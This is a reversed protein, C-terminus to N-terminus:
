NRFKLGVVVNKQGKKDSAESSRSSVKKSALRLRSVQVANERVFESGEFAPLFRSLDKLHIELSHEEVFSKHLESVLVVADPDVEFNTRLFTSILDQGTKWQATESQIAHPVNPLKKGNEYWAKSGSVLWALAAELQGTHNSYIRERLGIDIQRDTSSTPNSKYTYPFRVGLMRRWVSHGGDTLRPYHNATIVLSAVMEFTFNDQRMKRATIKQTGVLMKLRNTNLQTKSPFEEMIALRSGFLDTLETTHEDGSGTLVKESLITCFPGMLTSIAGLLLSKGNSGDGLAIVALDNGNPHGTLAQGLFVQMYEREQIPLCELATSWDQHQADFLFDCQVIKTFYYHPGHPLLEGSKLNVVGNKVNLLDSESDFLSPDVELAGRLLEAAAKIRGANQLRKVQDVLITLSEVQANDALDLIRLRVVETVFEKSIATWCGSEYRLWGHFSTWSFEAALNSALWEVVRADTTDRLRAGEFSLKELGVPNNSVFDIANQVHAIVGGPGDEHLPPMVSSRNYELITEMVRKAGLEDTGFQNAFSCAARYIEVAREGEVLTGSLFNDRDFLEPAPARFNSEIQKGRASLIPLKSDPSLLLCAELEESMESIPIEWPACGPKWSYSNGNVHRSPAAVIYGNHKLDIGVLNEKKPNVFRLGPKARFLLHEGVVTQHNIEYQGTTASVTQPIEGSARDLLRLLSKDGGNRPDVDIVFFGSPAAYLGINYDPNETWWKEIQALDTTADKQGSKSAPHKGIDKTDNHNTGCTCKGDKIGHVPLVHWGNQAYWLAHDKLNQFM